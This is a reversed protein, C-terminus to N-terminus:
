LMRCLLTVLSSLLWCTMIKTLFLWMIKPQLAIKFGIRIFFLINDHKLANKFATLKTLSFSERIGLRLHIMSTKVIAHPTSHRSNSSSDLLPVDPSDVTESEPELVCEQSGKCNFHIRM